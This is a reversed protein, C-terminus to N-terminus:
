DLLYNAAILVAVTLALAQVPNAQSYIVAAQLFGPLNPNAMQIGNDIDADQITNYSVDQGIEHNIIARMINHITPGDATLPGDADIGTDDSVSQVYATTENEVPPAYKNIILRITNLGDSNIKTILDRALARLGWSIDKFIYFTGDSGTVGQWATGDDKIDGPNNNRLGRPQSADGSYDTAM